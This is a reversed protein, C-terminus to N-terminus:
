LGMIKTLLLLFQNFNQTSEEVRQDKKLVASFAFLCIADHVASGVIPNVGSAITPPNELYYINYSGNLLQNFYYNAANSFYTIDNTGNMLSNYQYFITKETFDRRLAAVKPNAGNTIEIAILKFLDTPVAVTYSSTISNSLSKTLPSLVDPLMISDDVKKKAEYIGYLFNVAETQGDSLASYIEGDQWYSASAEDILTRVRALMDTSLM